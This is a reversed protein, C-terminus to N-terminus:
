TTLFHAPGDVHWRLHNGPPDNHIKINLKAHRQAVMPWVIQCESTGIDTITKYVDNVFNLVSSNV